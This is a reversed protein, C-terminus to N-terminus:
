INENTNRKIESEPIRRVHHVHVTNGYSDYMETGMHEIHHRDKTADTRPILIEKEDPYESNSGIIGVPDHERHHWHLIHQEGLSDNKSASTKAFTHAVHKDISSSLYTPQHYVSNGEKSKGALEANKINFGVGSYTDFKHKAPLFGHKDLDHVYEQHHIPVGKTHHQILDNTIKRSGKTFTQQHEVGKDSHTHADHLDMLHKNMTSNHYHRDEDSKINPLFHTNISPHETNEKLKTPKSAHAGHSNSIIEYEKKPKKNSSTKAFVDISAHAGHSNSIIEYEKPKESEFIFQKFTKM